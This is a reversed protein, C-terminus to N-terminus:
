ITVSVGSLRVQRGKNRPTVTRGAQRHELLDRSARIDMVLNMRVEGEDVVVQAVHNAVLSMSPQRHQRRLGVTPQPGRGGKTSSALTALHRYGDKKRGDKWRAAGAQRERGQRLM